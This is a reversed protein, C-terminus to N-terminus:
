IALFSLFPHSTKHLFFLRLLLISMQLDLLQRRAFLRSVYSTRYCRRAEPLRAIKSRGFKFQGFHVRSAIRVSQRTLNLWEGITTSECFGGESAGEIDM